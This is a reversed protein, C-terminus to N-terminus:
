LPIVIGIRDLIWWINIKQRRSYLILSILIGIGGGHSALGKYGVFSWGEDSIQFPLFAELPNALYYEPDYFFCHGLRAGILTGLFVYLTLIDLKILPVNDKEFLKKLLLYALVFGGAFLLSYWRLEYSGLTFIVGPPDWIISSICSM